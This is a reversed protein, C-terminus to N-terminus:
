EYEFPQHPRVLSIPLVLGLALVYTVVGKIVGGKKLRIFLFRYGDGAARFNVRTAASASM